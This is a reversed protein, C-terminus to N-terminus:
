HTVAPATEPPAPHSARINALGEKTAEDLAAIKRQKDAGTYDASSLQSLPYNATTYGAPWDLMPERDPYQGLLIRAGEVDRLVFPPVGGEDLIV